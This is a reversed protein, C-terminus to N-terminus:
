YYQQITAVLRPGTWFNNRRIRIRRNTRLLTQATDETEDAGCITNSPCGPKSKEDCLVQASRQDEFLIPAIKYAKKKRAEAHHGVLSGEVVIAQCM